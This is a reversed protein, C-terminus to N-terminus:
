LPAGTEVIRGTFRQSVDFCKILTCNNLLTASLIPSASIVEVMFISLTHNQDYFPFHCQLIYLICKFTFNDRHQVLHMDHLRIPSHLHLVM